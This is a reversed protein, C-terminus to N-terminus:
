KDKSEDSKMEAEIDQPGPLSGKLEAPLSDRLKTTYRAIGVPTGINRLAYEAIVKNRTKCLILGTRVLAARCHGDVPIATRCQTGLPHRCRSATSHHHRNEACSTGIESSEIEARTTGFEGFGFRLGSFASANALYQKCFLRTFGSVGEAFRGGVSTLSKRQRLCFRL